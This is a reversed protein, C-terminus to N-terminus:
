PAAIRFLESGALLFAGVGYDDFNALKTAGLATTDTCPRDGTSQVYGLLGNPQLATTLLGNWAALLAPRYSDDLFKKRLGWALGYAFLATGSTEPGDQGALGLTACHTPDVLSSSWFGDPRQIPLVAAAMTKFDALYSAYHPDTTPLVELVRVLAAMVWGNGRSWYLNKGNPSLIYADTGSGPIANHIASTMKQQTGGGPTFHWDRWWLGEAQNFLGGGRTNRAWSYLAWMENFYATDSQLVGFRAFLPMAMQIADIWTWVDNTSKAVMADLNKKLVAIREPKPDIAYLDLYTQGCALNDANDTLTDAATNAMTWPHAPSAGWKVAYDYYSTKRASDPEIAYLGLLGEYYIARTWLNSPRAKDTVIDATPDAHLDTFYTNARRMAELIATQNPLTPAATDAMPTDRALDPAGTDTAGIPITTDASGADPIATGGTNAIGGSRLFGGTATAGDPNTTGGTGLGGGTVGGSGTGQGGGTALTGGTSKAGGTGAQGGKGPQGGSPLPRLGIGGTVIPQRDGGVAGTGNPKTSSGTCAVVLSLGLIASRCPKM